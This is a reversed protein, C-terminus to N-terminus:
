GLLGAPLIVVNHFGGILQAALWIITMWPEDGTEPLMAYASMIGVWVLVGPNYEGLNLTVAGGLMALMGFFIAASVIVPAFIAALDNRQGGTMRQYVVNYMRYYATKDIFYDMADLFLVVALPTARVAEVFNGATVSKDVAYKMIFAFMGIAIATRILVRGIALKKYDAM